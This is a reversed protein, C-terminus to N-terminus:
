KIVTCQLYSIAICILEQRYVQLNPGSRTLQFIEVRFFNAKMQVNM